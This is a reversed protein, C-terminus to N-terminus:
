GPFKKDCNNPDVSQAIMTVINPGRKGVQSYWKSDKLEKAATSFDNKNMAQLFNTFKSLRTQGLNYALDALARKRIDTLDNWSSCLTQAIKVATTTDQEFWTNIQSLPVPTGLPYQAAENQRLLHGFGVSTGSTDQYVEQRFGEHAKIQCAFAASNFDKVPSSDQAPDGQVSTNNAGPAIATVPTITPSNGAGGSGEYTKDPQTLTPATSSVSAAVFSAHEPCPEYTPYRSVTTFVDQSNRKFKSEPDKWTALINLKENLPKVEAPRAPNASLPAQPIIATASAPSSPSAPSGSGIPKKHISITRSNITGTDTLNAKITTANLTQTKVTTDINVVTADINMEGSSVINTGDASSLSMESSTCFAMNGDSTVNLTGNTGVRINGTALIKGAM